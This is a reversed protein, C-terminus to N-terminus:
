EARLLGILYGNAAITDHDEKKAKRPSANDNCIYFEWRQKNPVSLAAQYHGSTPVEGLHFIVWAIIFTEERTDTGGEGEFIPLTLRAGPLLPIPSRNKGADESYRCLQLVVLGSHQVLASVAYQDRWHRILTILNAGALHLLVPSVLEGSDTIQFPLTLRSEWRGFYALPTTRRVVHQYFEGVDHQQRINHWQAFLFRWQLSDPLYLSGRVRLANIGAKLSGCATTDDGALAGIWFFAKQWDCYHTAKYATEVQKALPQRQGREPRLRAGLLKMVANGSLLRLGEFVKQAGETRLGITIVFPVVEAQTDQTIDKTARFKLLVGQQPLFREVEELIEMVRNHPLPPTSSQFEKKDTPNWEFYHWMPTLANAGEGIWGCNKYRQLLQENRLLDELKARLTQVLGLMLTLGLPSTVKNNAYLDQWKVAAQKLTELCSYQETDVFMMYGMERRLHALEGEHRLVLKTMSQILHQTAQDLQGTEDQTNVTPEKRKSQRDWSYWGGKGASEGKRQFKAKDRSAWSEWDKDKEADADKQTQDTEMAQSPAALGGFVEKAEDAAVARRNEEGMNIRAAASGRLSLVLKSKTSNVQMGDEALLEFTVRVCHCMFVLDQLTEVRWALHKDDAFATFLAQVWARSTRAEIREMLHVTYLTYLLPSLACGQRVGVQMPFHGQYNHHRVTYRCQNHVQLISQCLDDPVHSARLSSELAQRTLSDFARSLDLSLMAGGYCTSERQGARKQHVNLVGVRVRERIDSCFSSVRAIAIDISKGPCYAHQNSALIRDLTLALLRERLVIAYVKASPDQLGLPRLDQPRRNVKGPKPLLSLECDAIESPPLEQTAKCRGLTTAMFVAFQQPCLKWVDAPISQRPVAKGGKLALAATYLEEVEPVLVAKPDAHRHASASFASSFYQYIENYEDGKTLLQGSANKIRVQERRRRPAITNIVRYVASHNHAHAAEEAEHLLDVLWQKRAARSAQRLEKTRTQFKLRRRVLEASRRFLPGEVPQQLADHSTWLQQICQKVAETRGPRADRSTQKPFLRQCEQLVAQNVQALTGSGTHATVINVVSFQLEVAKPTGLKLHQKMADLSFRQQVPKSKAFTWGAVWKLSGCVPRHRPGLRWPTLCLNSPEAQKALTDVTLRRTALFDLQTKTAGNCFTHAHGASSRGWTNLLTIQHTELVAELEPDFGQKGKLVGRGILGPQSRIKSNLDLGLVLLHRVPLTHLLGSLKEWFVGRRRAIEERNHDQWVHQYGAVVDVNVQQGECRVHLLRGPIIVNYGIQADNAVKPSVFVGVGCYRQKPDPSILATWSEIQWRNETKGCGHHLEQIIVIDALDQKVLWDCFVDYSATCFGGINYTLVRLRRGETSRAPRSLPNLKTATGSVTTGLDGASHWRGRYFTGGTLEARRRARRFARKRSDTFPAATHGGKGSIKAVSTVKPDRTSLSGVRPNVQASLSHHIDTAIAPRPFQSGLPQPMEGSSFISSHFFCDLLLVIWFAM